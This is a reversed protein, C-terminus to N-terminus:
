KKDDTSNYIINNMKLATDKAWQSPNGHEFFCLNCVWDNGNEGSISNHSCEEKTNSM